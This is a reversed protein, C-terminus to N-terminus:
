PQGCLQRVTRSGGAGPMAPLVVLVMRDSALFRSKLNPGDAKRGVLGLSAEGREVQAMVSTSDGAVAKVRINPYRQCFAPLM